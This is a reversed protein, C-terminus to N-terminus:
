ALVRHPLAPAAQAALDLLVAPSRLARCSACVGKCVVCGRAHLSGVPGSVKIALDFLLSAADYFPHGPRLKAGGGPLLVGNIVSFRRQAHPSAHSDPQRTSLADDPEFTRVVAMRFAPLRLPEAAESDLRRHRTM